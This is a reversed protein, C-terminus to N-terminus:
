QRHDKLRGTGGAQELAKTSVEIIFFFALVILAYSPIAPLKTSAILCIFAAVLPLWYRVFGLIRQEAHAIYRDTALHDPQALEQLERADDVGAALRLREQRLRGHEDVALGLGAPAALQAGAVLHLGALLV